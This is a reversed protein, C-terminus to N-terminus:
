PIYSLGITVVEMNHISGISKGMIMVTVVVATETLFSQWSFGIYSMLPVRRIFIHKQTNEVSGCIVEM